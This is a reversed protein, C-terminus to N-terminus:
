VGSRASFRVTPAGAPPTKIVSQRNGAADFTYEIITGDSYTAKTLRYLNDYEYIVTEAFCPLVFCVMVVVLALVMSLRKLIM